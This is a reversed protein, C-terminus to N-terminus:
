FAGFLTNSTATRFDGRAGRTSANLPESTGNGVPVTVGFNFTFFDDSIPGASLDTRAIEASLIVPMTTVNGVALDYTVGLAFQNADADPGPVSISALAATGYVGLADNVDYDAGLAFVSLEANLAPSDFDTLAYSGFIELNPAVQYDGMIGFDTIDTGAPLSPDTDSIGIFGEVGWMDSDYGGFLGYSQLDVGAVIPAAVGFDIDHLHYYAGAYYGNGFNYQPEVAFRLVDADVTVGAAKAEAMVAEIDFGVQFKPTFIVDSAMGFYLSTIDASAPIVPPGLVDNSMSFGLTFTGNFMPGDATQAFASPAMMVALASAYTIQKIM